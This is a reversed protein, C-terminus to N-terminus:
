QVNKGTDWAYVLSLVDKGRPVAIVVIMILLNLCLVFLHNILELVTAELPLLPRLSTRVM